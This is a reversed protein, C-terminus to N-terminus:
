RECRPPVEIVLYRFSGFQGGDQTPVDSYDSWDARYTGTLRIRDTRGKKTGYATRPAWKLPVSGSFTRGEYVRFDGDCTDDRRPPNWYSPDNTLFIAFGTSGRVQQTLHELRQLDLCFDYRGCDQASQDALDYGEGDDLQLKRTKYKLEFFHENQAERVWIDVHVRRRGRPLFPYELRIQSSPRQERIKWALAHQFDAESHFAPRTEALLKMIKHVNM